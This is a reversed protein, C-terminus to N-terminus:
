DHRPYYIPGHLVPPSADPNDLNAFHRFAQMDVPAKFVLFVHTDDHSDLAECHACLDKACFACRYWKGVIREMHRDCLAFAHTLDRLYAAPEKTAYANVSAPPPGAPERYLVPIIPFESELPGTVDVPRPIKIFTHMPDHVRYSKEECDSCLNYSKPRSPCTLCQYRAGVIPQNCSNCVQLHVYDEEIDDQHDGNSYVVTGATVSSVSGPSSRMFPSCHRLDARDRGHRLGHARQSVHQVDHRNLPVPIKLMIHSSNHGGESADLNGPLGATECNSCIDMDTTTCDVCRYRAGVIDQKCNYCQVDPHKMSLEEAPDDYISGGPLEPLSQSRWAPKGKMALFPHIPHINHVDSYCARCIAFNDCIGCKYRSGSLSARCASCEQLLDDGLELDQWGDPGWVMEKFAHRLQGKRKPASRRAVALEQATPPTTPSSPSDLGNSVSHSIGVKPLCMSCLEYGVLTFSSSSDSSSSSSLTTRSGNGLGVITQTPSISPLAPLPKTTSVLTRMSDSPAYTTTPSRHSRPPYAVEYQPTHVPYYGHHHEHEYDPFAHGQDKSSSAAAAAARATRSIPIKEGCTTCIYKHSDLNRGCASCETVEEPVLLESPIAAGNDVSALTPESHSHTPRPRSSQSSSARAEYELDGASESGGSGTYSYFYKGREDKQLLIDNPDGESLPSDTNLSFSDDSVSPAPLVRSMMRNAAQEQLWAQGIDTKLLSREHPPSSDGEEELKLREFVASPDAPYRNANETASGSSEGNLHAGNSKSTAEEDANSGRSGLGFIRSRSPKLQPRTRGSSGGSRASGNLIKRFLSTDSRSQRAGGRTDKSSVTVADDDQPSGSLEGPSFSVQSGEPSFEERSALSSTDSLSLDYEIHIEVLMTIKHRSSGRSSFMSGSSVVSGDDGGQYYDIAEDLSTEDNIYCTEGDDDTWRIVFSHTPLGFRKGIKEVLGDYTCNQASEFSLKNTRSNYDCKVVLPKQPRESGPHYTSPGAHPEM